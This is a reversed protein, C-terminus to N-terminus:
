VCKFYDTFKRIMKKFSGIENLPEIQKFRQGTVVIPPSFDENIKMAKKPKQISIPIIDHERNIETSSKSLNNFKNEASKKKISNIVKEKIDKSSFRLFLDEDKIVSVYLDSLTNLYYQDTPEYYSIKGFAIVMDDKKINTKNKEAPYMFTTTISRGGIEYSNIYIKGKSIKISQVIYIVFREKSHLSKNLEDALIVVENIGLEENGTKYKFKIKGLEDIANKEILNKMQSVTRIIDRFVKKYTKYKNYKEIENVSSNEDPKVIKKNSFSDGHRKLTNLDIIINIEGEKGSLTEILKRGEWNANFYEVATKQCNHGGRSPLARFFENQVGTVELPPVCFPCFIEGQKHISRNYDSIKIYGNKYKAITLKDMNGGERVTTDDLTGTNNYESLTTQQFGDASWLEL